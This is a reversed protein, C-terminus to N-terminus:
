SSALHGEYLKRQLFYVQVFMDNDSYGANNDTLFSM